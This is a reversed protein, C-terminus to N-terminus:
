RKTVLTEGCDVCYASRQRRKTAHSEQTCLQSAVKDNVTLGCNPCFRVPADSRGHNFNQCRETTTM